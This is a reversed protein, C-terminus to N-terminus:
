APIPITPVRRWFKRALVGSPSTGRALDFKAEFVDSGHKCREGELYSM